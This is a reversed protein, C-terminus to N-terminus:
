LCITCVPDAVSNKKYPYLFPLHAIRRVLQAPITELQGTGVASQKGPEGKLETRECVVSGVASPDAESPEFQKPSMLFRLRIEKSSREPDECKMLRNLLFDNHPFYTTLNVCTLVDFPIQLFLL